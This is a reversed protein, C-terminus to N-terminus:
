HRGSPPPIILRRSVRISDTYRCGLSQHRGRAIPGPSPPLFRHPGPRAVPHRGDAIDAEPTVDLAMSGSLRDVKWTSTVPSHIQFLNPRLNVTANLTMAVTAWPIIRWPSPHQTLICLHCSHGAGDVRLTSRSEADGGLCCRGGNSIGNRSPSGGHSGNRLIEAAWCRGIPRTCAQIPETGGWGASWAPAGLALGLRSFFLGAPKTWTGGYSWFCQDLEIGCNVCLSAGRSSWHRSPVLKGPGAVKSM